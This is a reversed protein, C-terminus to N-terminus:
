GPGRLGAHPSLPGQLPLKLTSPLGHVLCPEARDGGAGPVQVWQRVRGRQSHPQQHLRPQSRHLLQHLFWEQCVGGPGWARCHAPERGQRDHGHPGGVRCLEQARCCFLLPSPHPWLECPFPAVGKWYGWKLWHLHRLQAGGAACKSWGEEGM